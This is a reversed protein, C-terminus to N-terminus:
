ASLAGAPHKMMAHVGCPDHNTARQLAGAASNPAQPLEQRRSV